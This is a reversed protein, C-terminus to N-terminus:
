LVRLRTLIRHPSPCFAKFKPPAKHTFFFSNSHLILSPLPMIVQEVKQLSEPLLSSLSTTSSSPHWINEWNVKGDASDKMREWDLRSKADMAKSDIDDKKRFAHWRGVQPQARGALESRFPVCHTSDFIGISCSLVGASGTNLKKAGTSALKQFSVGTFSDTLCGLISGSPEGGGEESAQPAGNFRTLQDVARQLDASHPFNASLAFLVTHGRKGYKTSLRSIQGLIGSTSHSFITSLHIPQVMILYTHAEPLTGLQLGHLTKAQIHSCRPLM